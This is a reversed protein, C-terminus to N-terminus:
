LKVNRWPSWASSGYANFARVRYRWNGKGPADVLTNQNAGTTGAISGNTWLKGVHEERQVEFGTENVSLDPWTLRVSGGSLKKATPQGPAAPPVHTDVVSITVGATGASGCSDLARATISHTGAVLDSKSFSAGTGIQGQLSSTWVLSASLIGQEPDTASGAFAIPAGLPFSAGNAPSSIAVSPPANITLTAPATQITGCAGNVSCTYTGASSASASAITYVSATAGSIPTGNKRWQFLFPGSGGATTSFSVPSGPCVLASAPATATVPSKVTLLAAKTETTGCAGTVVASYSGAHSQAVVPIAYTAATAGPIPSGDKKWQYTFTGASTPSTSFSASTGVCATANLPDTAGCCAPFMFVSQSTSLGAPDLVTLKFEYSYDHGDCGVPSIVASTSCSPDPPEAHSHEDHHLFVQWSCTLQQPSFENDSILATMPVVTNQNMSYLSGDVPSTIAVQPPTNDLSVALMTTSDNGAPDVVRLSVTRLLPGAPAGGKSFVHEPDPEISSAGDGFDWRYKLPEGEPDYSESGVLQVSLPAPGYHPEARAIAVPPQDSTDVLRKVGTGGINDFEIFYLQDSSADFAAAVLSATEGPASLQNVELPNGDHDVALTFLFDSVFDGFVVSDHYLPGYADSPIFTCAVACNGGFNPGPIPSAPDNLQISVANVGSYTRTRAPGAGHFWDILPRVHEFRPISSPIQVGTNCPNPWSPTALTDQVILHEFTFHQLSCGGSGYLPNPADKNPPALGLYTQQLDMGEYVPWGFNQGRGDCLNLEERQNWGVEGIFLKGPRGEAPNHSGSEPLLFMRFPNRLGLAWVRSRPARPASADWFPNSPLGDGSAPDVRLVKGSHSDVLQARYAGVDEKAKIIGEGLGTNSSGGIPGGKDIGVYSAGDGCSVLLTGDEGFALSGTGHSQHLIAIGTTISEGILVRRSGYDISRFGSAATATYRVLRGITDHFYENATPNYQPTGFYKLHHYDVVYLLYVYGNSYFDPDLAFGLLGFDRWNGVEESLDILPQAAKVGGEVNWVRGGKEWVFMRGDEAFCLGVPENWGSAVPVEILGQPWVRSDPAAPPASVFAIGTALVLPLM